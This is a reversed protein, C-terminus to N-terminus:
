TQPQNLDHRQLLPRLREAVGRIDRRWRLLGTRGDALADQDGQELGAEIRQYTTLLRQWAQTYEAHIRRVAPTRPVWAQLALMHPGLRDRSEKVQRRVENDDVFQTALIRDIGAATEAELRSWDHLKRMYEVLDARETAPNSMCGALGVLAVTAYSGLLFGNVPRTELM